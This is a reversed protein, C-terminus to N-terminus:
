LFFMIAGAIQPLPTQSVPSFLFVQPASQSGYILQLVDSVDQQILLIQTAALFVQWCPYLDTNLPQMSLHWGNDSHTQALSLQVIAAFHPDDSARCGFFLSVTAQPLAPPVHCHVSELQKQEHLAVQELLARPQL